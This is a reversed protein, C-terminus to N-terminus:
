LKIRQKELIDGRLITMSGQFHGTDFSCHPALLLYKDTKYIVWGVSHIIVPAFKEEAVDDIVQWGKDRCSSHDLWKIHFLKPDAIVEEPSTASM